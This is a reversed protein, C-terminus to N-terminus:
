VYENTCQSVLAIGVMCSVISMVVYNNLTKVERRPSDSKTSVHSYVRIETSVGDGEEWDSGSSAREDPIM